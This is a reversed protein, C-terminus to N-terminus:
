RGKEIVAQQLVRERVIELVTDGDRWYLIEAKVERAMAPNTRLTNALAKDLRPLLLDTSASHIYHALDTTTPRKSSCPRSRKGQSDRRPASTTRCLNDSQLPAADVPISKVGPRYYHLETDNFYFM